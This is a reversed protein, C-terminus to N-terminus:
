NLKLTTLLLKLPKNNGRPTERDLYWNLYITIEENDGVDANALDISAYVLQKFVEQGTEETLHKVINQKDNRGVEKLGKFGNQRLLRSLMTGRIDSVKKLVSQASLAANNLTYKYNKFNKAQLTDLMGMTSLSNQLRRHADRFFVKDRQILALYSEVPKEGSEKFYDMYNVTYDVLKYLQKYADIKQRPSIEYGEEDGAQLDNRIELLASAIERNEFLFPKNLYVALTSSSPVYMVVQNLKQHLEANEDSLINTTTDGQTRNYYALLENVKQQLYTTSRGTFVPSLNDWLSDVQNAETLMSLFYTANDKASNQDFGIKYEDQGVVSYPSVPIDRDDVEASISFNGVFDVNNALKKRNFRVRLISNGSVEEVKRQITDFAWVLKPETPEELNEYIKIYQRPDVENIEDVGTQAYVSGQLGSLFIILTLLRKM